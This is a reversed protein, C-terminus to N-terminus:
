VHPWDRRHNRGTWWDFLTQLSKCLSGDPTDNGQRPIKGVM